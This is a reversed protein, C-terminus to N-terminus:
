PELTWMTTYPWNEVDVGIVNNSWDEEELTGLAGGQQHNFQVDVRNPVCDNTALNIVTFVDQFGYQNASTLGPVRREEQLSTAGTTSSLCGAPRQAPFRAFFQIPIEVTIPTGDLLLLGRTGGQNEVNLLVNWHSYGDQGASASVQLRTVVYDPLPEECGSCVLVVVATALVAGIPKQHHM